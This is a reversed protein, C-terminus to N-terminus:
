FNDEYLIDSNLVSISGPHADISAEGPGPKLFGPITRTMIGAKDHIYFMRLDTKVYCPENLTTTISSGSM